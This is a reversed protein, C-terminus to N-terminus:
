DRQADPPETVQYGEHRLADAAWGPWRRVAAKLQIELWETRHEHVAQKWGAHGHALGEVILAEVVEELTPRFRRGGVPLHLDRLAKPGGPARTCIEILPECHGGVQVHAAPYENGQNRAYDYHFVMGKRTDDAYFGIESKTVMLYTAEDDMQLTYVVLLHGTPKGAGLTCAITQPTLHRKTIGCGVICRDKGYLVASLRVGHAVTRNLLDTVDGAFGRALDDLQPTM